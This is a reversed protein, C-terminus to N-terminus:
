RGRIQDPTVVRVAPNLRYGKGQVTEIIADLGLESGYLSQYERSIKERIRSITKRGSIDGESGAAEALDAALITRYNEPAREAERDQRYIRVLESLTRFEAPGMLPAIGDILIRKGAQDVALLMAGHETVDEGAETKRDTGSLQTTIPEREIEIDPANVVLLLLCSDPLTHDILEFKHAAAAEAFITRVVEGHRRFMGIFRRAVDSPELGPYCTTLWAFESAFRTAFSADSLRRFELASRVTDVAMARDVGRQRPGLLLDIAYAKAPDDEGAGGGLTSIRRQLCQVCAGCHTRYKTMQRTKSCSLTRQIAEGEPKDRLENVVEIKTKWIFPNDIVTDSPRILRCLSELLMLSRPHTSRSARTGVVQTSIPLNVSMIGNEYFRIRDTGEIEAAILAMATLLFSRTRQTHEIAKTEDTLGASVPVHTIRRPHRRRLEEALERQRSDTMGGIQRSLLVVHRNSSYLEEVAGAYSDLGGSFLVITADGPSEVRAEAFNLYDPLTPPNELEVFEFEWEDDTLFALVERLAHLRQPEKWTGPQRVAIALRFSRRWAEGMNEFKVGGRSVSNDAAFVYTAIEVLDTLLTPEVDFLRRRIDDLRLRLNARPGHIHLDRGGSYEVRQAPTVGCLFLREAM